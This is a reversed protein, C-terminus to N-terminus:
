SYADQHIRRLVLVIICGRPQWLQFSLEWGIDRFCATSRKLPFTFKDNQVLFKFNMKKDLIKHLNKLCQTTEFVYFNSKFKFPLWKKDKQGVISLSCDNCFSFVSFLYTLATVNSVLKDTLNDYNQLMLINCQLLSFYLCETSQALSGLFKFKSLQQLVVTLGM